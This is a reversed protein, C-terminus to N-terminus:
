TPEDLLNSHRVEFDFGYKEIISRVAKTVWKGVYPSIIIEDVLTNLDVQLNRGTKDIEPYEIKLLQQLNIAKRDIDPDKKVRFFDEKIYPSADIIARVENEYKFVKRKYFFPLYITNIDLINKPVKFNQPDIYKVKGIYIDEDGEDIFSNKLRQMTTKIVVGSNHLDYRGWMAMSEQKNRHWCCCMVWKRWNDWLERVARGGAEGLHDTEQKYIERLPPPVSGEYPDEFTDARAFYLSKTSLLSAFKEFSMYRWLIDGERPSLIGVIKKYM